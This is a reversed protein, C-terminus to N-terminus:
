GTSPRVYKVFVETLGPSDVEWGVCGSQGNPVGATFQWALPQDVSLLMFELRQDYTQGDVTDTGTTSGGTHDGIFVVPQRTMLDMGRLIVPGAVRHDAYFTDHYYYGWSTRVEVSSGSVHFPGSGLSGAPNWPGGVCQAISTVAPLHLPRAELEALPSRTEGVSPENHFASWARLLEAGMLGGVVIGILLLVAVLSLPARLRPAWAGSRRRGSIVSEIVREPM